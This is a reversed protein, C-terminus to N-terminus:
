EVEHDAMTKNEGNCPFMKLQAASSWFRTSMTKMTALSSFMHRPRLIQTRSAFINQSSATHLRFNNELRFM